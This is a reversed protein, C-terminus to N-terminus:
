THKHKTSFRLSFQQQLNEIYTAKKRRRTQGQVLSFLSRKLNKEKELLSGFKNREKGEQRSLFFLCFLVVSVFRVCFLSLDRKKAQPDFLFFSSFVLLFFLISNGGGGTLAVIYM